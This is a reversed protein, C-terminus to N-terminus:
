LAQYADVEGPGHAAGTCLLVGGVIVAVLLLAVLVILFIVVGPVWGPFAEITAPGTPPPTPFRTPIGGPPVTFVPPTGANSPARSPSRTQGPALPAGPARTGTPRTGNPNNTPARTPQAPPFYFTQNCEREPYGACRFTKPCTNEVNLCDLNTPQLELGNEDCPNFHSLCAYIALNTLCQQSLFACDCHDSGDFCSFAITLNYFFERANFDKNIFTNTNGWM